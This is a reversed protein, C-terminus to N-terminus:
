RVWGGAEVGSVGDHAIHLTCHAIHLTRTCADTCHAHTRPRPFLAASSNVAFFTINSVADILQLVKQNFLITHAMVVLKLLVKFLLTHM